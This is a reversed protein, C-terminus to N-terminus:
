LNLNGTQLCTQLPTVSFFMSRAHLRMRVNHAPISRTHKLAHETIKTMTRM